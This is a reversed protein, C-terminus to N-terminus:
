PRVRSGHQSWGAFRQSLVGEYETKKEKRMRRMNMRRRVSVCVCVCVYVCVRMCVYMCEYM